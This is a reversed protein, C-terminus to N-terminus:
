FFIWKQRALKLAKHQERYHAAKDWNRQFNIHWVCKINGSHTNLSSKPCKATKHSRIWYQLSFLFGFGFCCCTLRSPQKLFSLFFNFTDPKGNYKVTWWDTCASDWGHVSKPWHLHVHRTKLRLFFVSTAVLQRGGARAAASRACQTHESCHQHQCTWLRQWRSASTHSPSSRACLATSGPQGSVLQRCLHPLEWDHQLHNRGSIQADENRM